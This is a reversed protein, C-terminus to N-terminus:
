EAHLTSLFAEGASTKRAVAVKKAKNNARAEQAVLEARRVAKAYPNLRLMVQVNRLPNKKMSSRKQNKAQAPKVIAQVEDSNIVRTIDPNSLIPQPLSHTHLYEPLTPFL